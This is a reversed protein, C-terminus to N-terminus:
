DEETYLYNINIFNYLRNKGESSDIIICPVKTVLANERGAAEEYNDYLNCMEDSTYLDIEGISKFPNYWGDYEEIVVKSKDEILLLQDILQQVTM